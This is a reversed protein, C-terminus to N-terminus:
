FLLSQQGIVEIRSTVMVEEEMGRKHEGRLYQMGGRLSASVLNLVYINDFRSYISDGGLGSLCILQTNTKQAMDMLPKLLHAANTQAFPNDMVLVKGENKDAFLDMEDRRMYHLLSSLIVFASLFGEGGSNRAVESWTIPYERQEEIKYLKIQINGIGVITDYLAKTTIRSSFYNVPNENKEYIKVGNETLEDMYDNMRQRYLGENEEWDPLYLRLMKISQERVTITSNNDIQALNRHVEKVYDELLGVIKEKEKEVLAIDVTLKEMQSDYSQLTASFQALLLKAQGIVSIMTELPKRYYEEQYIEKRVLANLQTQIKDKEENQQRVYERYDRRMAGTFDRLEKADMRAIEENWTLEEVLEFDQYESLTVLNQELSQRHRELRKMEMDLENIRYKLQNMESEYDKTTIESKELPEKKSCQEFIKKKQDTIKSTLVAVNKDEENWLREKGKYKKKKDELLLEQHLQEEENYTIQKWEEQHFGYKKQKKKLEERQRELKIGSKKLDDELEVLERSIGGTIAEYRQELEEPTENQFDVSEEYSAFRAAKDQIRKVDVGIARQESELTTLEETYKEWLYLSNKKKEEQRSKEKGYEEKQKRNEEYDRYESCFYAFDNERRKYYDLRQKEELIMSLLSQIKNETDLVEEGLQRIEKELLETKRRVEEQETRNKEVKEKTITHNLLISRKGSYDQYEGTRIKIQEQKKAIQKEKELILIRLAEPDLLKENFWLYFNMGSLKLVSCSNETLVDEMYERAILPIPYSTYIERGSGELKRIEAKPLILSYPLFPQTRVLRENEEKSYGNKELWHMGYVPHLDLEQLLELFEAPLELLEGSTLKKWEKQLEREEQELRGRSLNINSLKHDIAELIKEQQWILNEELELYQMLNERERIQKDFEEGEKKLLELESETRHKEAIKDERDREKSKKKEQYELQKRNHDKHEKVLEQLQKEYEMKKIELMGPEYEGLINRTFAEHYDRNYKEEKKIFENNDAKCFAIKRILEEIEKQIEEEKIKQERIQSKKYECDAEKQEMALSKEKMEEFYYTKLLGGIRNREPELEEEKKHFVEIKQRFLEYDELCEEVELQQKACELLHVKKEVWEIERELEDMELRIMECNSSRLRLQDQLHHLEMSLKEYILFEIKEEFSDREERRNKLNEKVIEELRSLEKSFCAIRNQSSKVEEEAKLYSGASAEVEQMDEKFKLITDRRDIKSKNEKYMQVYKEMITQFEKMRNQERNLKSEIAEVFWKEVLDKENKCDAFLESLGSEKLNVKRIITEWEKYHIKYEALKDFYQRSQAYHNMDYYFFKKGPDKKYGEFIQQCANYNKLIIENGSKEVLPINYIDQDCRTQYESIFNIIELPETSSDEASQNKRVMMGTLCYGASQDLKWEVLIFTPKSGTFYSEFPRDKTKRYQKHVFPASMMQVLVSKGGGNRLSLLTSQGGLQFVEDVIRISNNNYNLNIIRVANIKSM